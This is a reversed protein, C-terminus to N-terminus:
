SNINTIKDFRVMSNPYTSGVFEASQTSSATEDDQCLVYTRWLHLYAKQIKHIRFPYVVPNLVSNLHTLLIGTHIAAKYIKVKGIHDIINMIHLPLWCVAFLFLVLALSQALKREKVYYTNCETSNASNHKLHKKILYFIKVYLVVMILLPILIFGFFNFYVMYSMSIVSTFRCKISSTENMDKKHWGFMPILGLICSILWCVGVAIWSHKQTTNSRYRFPIKVRLYRDIAIALLSFISTQTLIMIICCIFLCGYFTTEKEANIFIAIPIAVAGVLFDAVALSIIFCFTPERLSYKLKIACIVLSNGLCCSLAILVEFITYILNGYNEM